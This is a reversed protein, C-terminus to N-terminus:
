YCLAFCYKYKKITKRRIYKESQKIFTRDYNDKRRNKKIKIKKYLNIKRNLKKIKRRRIKNKRRLYKIWTSYNARKKSKFFRYLPSLQLIRLLKYFLKFYIKFWNIPRRRRIIQATVQIVDGFWRLLARVTPWRLHGYCFDQTDQSPDYMWILPNMYKEQLRRNPYRAFFPNIVRKKEQIDLVFNWQIHAFIFILLWVLEDTIYIFVEWYNHIRSLHVKHTYLNPNYAVELDLVTLELYWKWSYILLWGIIIFKYFNPLIRKEYIHVEWGDAWMGERDQIGWIWAEIRGLLDYKEIIPLFDRNVFWIYFSVAGIGFTFDVINKWLWFGYIHVCFNFVDIIMQQVGQLYTIVYLNMFNRVSIYPSVLKPHLDFTPLLWQEYTWEFCLDYLLNYIFHFSAIFFNQVPLYTYSMLIVTLESWAEFFPWGHYYYGYPLIVIYFIFLLYSLYLLIKLFFVIIKPVWQKIPPMILRTLWRISKRITKLIYKRNKYLIRALVLFVLFKIIFPKKLWVVYIVYYVLELIRLYVLIIFIALCFVTKFNFFKRNKFM